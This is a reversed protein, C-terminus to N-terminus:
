KAGGRGVVQGFVWQSGGVCDRCRAEEIPLNRVGHELDGIPELFEYFKSQRVIKYLAHDGACIRGVFGIRM